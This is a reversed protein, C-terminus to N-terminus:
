HHSSQRAGTAATVVGLGLLVSGSILREARAFSRNGRIWGSATGAALAWLSDSVLGLGVFVLGFVASQLAVAGADPDIFQPLFAFFFLATKPNLVNVLAGQVFLRRLSRNPLARAVHEGNGDGRTLRRVGLVVLYVAGAWKVVNFAAASRVLLASVGVAAATVHVLTGAHIGLMSVLGATRGQDVSRTVIFIVAPGPVVLMALAAAAFVVLTHTDPM